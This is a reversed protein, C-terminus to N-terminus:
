GGGPHRFGHVLGGDGVVRGRLAQMRKGLLREVFGSEPSVSRHRFRGFVVFAGLEAGLDVVLQQM